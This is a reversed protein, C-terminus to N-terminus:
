RHVTTSLMAKALVKSNEQQRAHNTGSLNLKASAHRQIRGHKDRPCIDCGPSAFTFNCCALTLFLFLVFNKLSYDDMQHLYDLYEQNGAFICTDIENGSSENEIRGICQKM